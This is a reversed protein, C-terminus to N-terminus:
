SKKIEIPSLSYWQQAPGTLATQIMTIQKFIWEGHYPSDTQEPVATMARNATIANLFNKENNTPDM